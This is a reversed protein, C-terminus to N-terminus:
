RFKDETESGRASTCRESSEDGLEAFRLMATPEVLSRALTIFLLLKMLFSALLSRLMLVLTTLEM